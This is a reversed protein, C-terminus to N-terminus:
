GGLIDKLSVGADDLTQRLTRTLGSLLKVKAVHALAHDKGIADIADQLQRAETKLGLIQCQAIVARANAIVKTERNM